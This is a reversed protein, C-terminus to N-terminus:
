LRGADIEPLALSRLVQVSLSASGSVRRVRRDVADSALLELMEKLSIKQSGDTTPLIVITHNETVFGGFRDVIHRPVLGVVLRRRQASNSTRQVILAERKIIARSNIPMRVFSIGDSCRSGLEVELGHRINRAWILPFEGAQAFSRDTLREACRNWVFHGAAVHYGYDAFTRRGEDFLEGGDSSPLAWPTQDSKPLNIKGTLVSSRGQIIGFATAQKVRAEAAKRRRLILVCTDQVVDLFVSSRKAIVSLELIETEKLLYSRFKRFYPGSIFSTPIILAVLGGPSVREICSASFLVYTNVHGDTIVGQWRDRLRQSARFVRGYPPNSIVIDFQPSNDAKLSNTREISYQLVLADAVEEAVHQMMIECLRALGPDIEIGKIIFSAPIQRQTRAFAAAQLSVPVLFAAGGCAPDLFHGRLFDAGYHQLREIIHECIYQPTFYAALMRRRAKPMLLMYLASVASCRKELNSKEFHEAWSLRALLANDGRLIKRCIDLRDYASLVRDRSLMKAARRM